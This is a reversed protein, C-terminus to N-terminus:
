QSCFLRLIWIKCSYYGLLANIIQSWYVTLMANIWWIYPSFISFNYYCCFNLTIKLPRYYGFELSYTFQFSFIQIFIQELFPFWVIRMFQANNALSFMGRLWYAKLPCSTQIKVISDNDPSCSRVVTGALSITGFSSYLQM